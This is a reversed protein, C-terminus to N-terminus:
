KQILVCLYVCRAQEGPLLILYEPGYDGGNFAAKAVLAAPPPLPLAAPAVPAGEAFFGLFVMGICKLFPLM